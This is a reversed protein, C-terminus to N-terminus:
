GHRVEDAQPVAASLREMVVKWGGSMNQYAVENRPLDFGAHEMRLRTGGAIATLAFTVTTRLVSGYGQNGADGGEWSFELLSQPEVRQVRCRITGDWAGAPKTTFTFDQGVVAAFGSPPMMWRAMMAGDSIARWVLDPAHPFDQEVIISRPAAVTDAM